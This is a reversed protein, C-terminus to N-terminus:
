ASNLFVKKTVAPTVIIDWYEPEEDASSGHLPAEQFGQRSTQCWKARLM